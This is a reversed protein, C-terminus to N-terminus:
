YNANRQEMEADALAENHSEILGHICNLAFLVSKFFSSVHIFDFRKNVRFYPEMNKNIPYRFKSSDQDFDHIQSCYNKIIELQNKYDDEYQCHEFLLDELKNWMSIIKHKNKLIFECRKDYSEGSEEFYIIKLSLELCNRYLYCMPLFLDAAMKDNEDELAKKIKDCIIGASKYYAERYPRFLQHNYKYGVVSSLNYNWGIEIFSPEFEKFDSDTEYQVNYAKKLLEFSIEFKNVLKIIDIHTQEKFVLAIKYEGADRKIHFPYRFSDSEKDFNSLAKLYKSLWLLEDDKLSIEFRSKIINFIDSLDHRSSNIFKKRQVADTCFKLYIAKILLEISQRYLFTMPYLFTDVISIDRNNDIVCDVIVNAASLYCLAYHYFAKESDDIAEIKILTESDKSCQDLIKNKEPWPYSYSM